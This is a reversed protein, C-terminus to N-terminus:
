VCQVEAGEESLVSARPLEALMWTGESTLPCSLHAGGGYVCLLGAVGLAPLLPGPQSGALWFPPPSFCFIKPQLARTPHKELPSLCATISWATIVFSCMLAQPPCLATHSLHIQCAPVQLERRRFDM